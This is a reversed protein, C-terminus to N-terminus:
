RWGNRALVRALRPLVFRDVSFQLLMGIAIGTLLLESM